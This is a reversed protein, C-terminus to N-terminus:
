GFSITHIRICINHVDNEYLIGSVQKSMLVITILVDTCWAHLQWCTNGRCYRSLPQENMLFSHRGIQLIDYPNYICSCLAMM